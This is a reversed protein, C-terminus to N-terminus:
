EDVRERTWKRQCLNPSSVTSFITSQTVIQRNNQSPLLYYQCEVRSTVKKTLDKVVNVVLGDFCDVQAATVSVHKEFHYM